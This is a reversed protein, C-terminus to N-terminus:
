NHLLQIFHVIIISYKYVKHTPIVFTLRTKKNMTKFTNLLSPCELEEEAFEVAVTVKHIYSM